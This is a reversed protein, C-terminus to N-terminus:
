EGPTEAAAPTAPPLAPPTTSPAAPAAINLQQAGPQAINVQAVVPALLRRVRALALCAELYRRHARDQRRDYYEAKTLTYGTAAADLDALNAALWCTAVRECLSRELPSPDAGLLEKLHAQARREWAEHILLNKGTSATLMARRARVAPSELSREWDDGMAALLPRLQEMAKADGAQAKDILPGM